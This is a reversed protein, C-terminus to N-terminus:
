VYRADNLLKEHLVKFVYEYTSYQQFKLKEVDECAAMYSKSYGFYDRWKDVVAKGNISVVKYMVRFRAKAKYESAKSM